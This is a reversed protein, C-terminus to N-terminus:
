SFVTGIGNLAHSVPADVRADGIVVRSVGRDLAERAGLVKKKMRGAAIEMLEDIADRTVSTILSTEDPFARLVGPVNSLLLLQEANLAAATAAAARDADVNIPHGDSSLGPPCLVPISGSQIVTRILQTNVIEVTGTYDDRIMVTRGDEVARIASKREGVWTRGDVGSIGVANVGRRLLTNVIRQNFLGRVAMQFIELTRADTRRSVHGSPSTIFRPEIGLERSLTNTHDSGGHVIVCTRGSRHIASIDDCVREIDVGAAGGIKIVIM